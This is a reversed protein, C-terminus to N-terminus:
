RDIDKLQFKTNFTLELGNSLHIDYEKRDKEIGCITTGNYNTKVYDAIAQPVLAAPVGAQYKIETWQGNRDFEIKDGNSFVVDYSKEIIGSEQQAYAVKASAFHQSVLQQAAAPLQNITIPKENDACASTGIAFVCVLAVAWKKLNTKM